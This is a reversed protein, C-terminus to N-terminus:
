FIFMRLIDGKINWLLFLTMYTKFRCSTSYNKKQTYQHIHTHM